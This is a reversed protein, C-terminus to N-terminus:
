NTYDFRHYESNALDEETEVDYILLYFKLESKGSGAPIHFEEYPMFMKFDTFRTSDYKAVFNEGLCVQSDPTSYSGDYDTLKSGDAYSFYAACKGTRGQMQGVTFTVYIFMGRKGDQYKDYDVRFSEVKGSRGSASSSSGKQTIDIRLELDGAMVKMYDSRDAGTTNPSCQLTFSEGDKETVSCWSPVGWITWDSIDTYIFFVEEGGESPFEALTDESSFDVELYSGTSGTQSGAYLSFYQRLLRSGNRWVEFRYQGPEYVGPEASGWGSINVTNTGPSVDLTFSNTYGSPSNSSAKLNGSPDYIKYYFTMNKTTNGSWNYTLQPMLYCVKSAVLEAGFPDLVNDDIDENRFTVSSFTIKGTRQSTTTTTTGTTTTTRGSRGSAQEEIKRDCDRIREALNNGAPKDPCAQAAAFRKKASSYKGLRYLNEAQRYNKEYCQATADAGNLGAILLVCLLIM